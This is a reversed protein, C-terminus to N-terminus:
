PYFNLEQLTQRLITHKCADLVHKVTKTDTATTVHAFIAKEQIANRNLFESRVWEVGDDYDFRRPADPFLGSTNLPIRRGCLKERFIDAKNLFLLMTTKEFYYSNNISGFLDLAEELRNKKRDEHLSQDYESIAAVFIVATVGEFYHIWKRRENRQGGVDVIQFATGDVHFTEQIVGITKIRTFLYEKQSPIWSPGGWKPYRSCKAAFSGWSELVQYHSRQAWTQQVDPDKWLVAIAHAIRAPLEYEQAEINYEEIVRAQERAYEDQIESTEPLQGCAAVTEKAGLVLERFLPKKAQARKQQGIGKGYLIHMQKLITTKGSDGSGLLLLKLVDLEQRNMRDLYRSLNDDIIRENDREFTFRGCVAGM